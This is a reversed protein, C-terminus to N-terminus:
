DKIGMSINFRDPNHYGDSINWEPFELSSFLLHNIDHSRIPLDGILIGKKAVRKMESICKKVYEKSPFYHFVSYSFVHEFEGDKFPLNDAEAVFVKSPLIERHKNILSESYDIGVYHSQFYQALMGAGCGVELVSSSDDVCLEKKIQDSVNKPDINTKEFGDLLKLDVDSVKGKKEWIDRWDFNM